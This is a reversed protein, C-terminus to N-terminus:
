DLVEFSTLIGIIHFMQVKKRLKRCKSCAGGGKLVKSKTGGAEGPRDSNSVVPRLPCEKIGANLGPIFDFIRPIVTPTQQNMNSESTNTGSRMSPLLNITTAALSDADSGGSPGHLSPTVECLVGDSIEAVHTEQTLDITAFDPWSDLTHSPLEAHSTFQLIQPSALNLDLEPFDVFCGLNEESSNGSDDLLLDPLLSNLGDANSKPDPVSPANSLELELHGFADSGLNISMFGDMSPM